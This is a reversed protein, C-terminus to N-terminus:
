VFFADIRLNGSYFKYAGGRYQDGPKPAAAEGRDYDPNNTFLPGNDSWITCLFQRMGNYNPAKGGLPLFFLDLDKESRGKNLVGGGLCLHLNFDRTVPQLKRILQLATRMTWRPEDLINMHSHRGKALIESPQM